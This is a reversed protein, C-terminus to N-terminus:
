PFQELDDGGKKSKSEKKTNGEGRTNPRKKASAKRNANKSADKKDQPVVEEERIPGEESYVFYM